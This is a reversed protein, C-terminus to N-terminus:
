RLCEIFGNSCFDGNCDFAYQEGYAEFDFYSLLDSPIRDMDGTNEAIMEGLEEANSAEYLVYDEPESKLLGDLSYAEIVAEALEVSYAELSEAIENAETISIYESLEYVVGSFNADWDSFFYEEYYRGNEDPQDSIGIRALVAAADEETIPFEVWEGILKGENYKGLNTIYGMIKAENKM